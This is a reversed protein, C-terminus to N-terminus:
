RQIFETQCETHTCYAQVELLDQKTAQFHIYTPVSKHKNLSIHKGGKMKGISMANSNDNKETWWNSFTYNREM